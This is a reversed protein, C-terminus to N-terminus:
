PSSQVAAAAARPREAARHASSHGPYESMPSERLSGEPTERRVPVPSARDTCSPDPTWSRARVRHVQPRRCTQLNSATPPTAAPVPSLVRLELILAPAARPPSSSAITHLL